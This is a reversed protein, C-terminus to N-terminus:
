VAKRTQKRSNDREYKTQRRKTRVPIKREQNEVGENEKVVDLKEM